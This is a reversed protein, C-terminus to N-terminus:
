GHRSRLFATQSTIMQKGSIAGGSTFSLVRVQLRDRIAPDISHRGPMYGGGAAGAGVATTGSAGSSTAPLQGQQAAAAAVHQQQQASTSTPASSATTTATLPGAVAAAGPPAAAALHQTGDLSPIATGTGTPTLSNTDSVRATRQKFSALDEAM